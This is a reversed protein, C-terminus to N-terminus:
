DARRQAELDVSDPDFPEALAARAVQQLRQGYESDGFGPFLAPAVNAGIVANPAGIQDRRFARQTDAELNKRDSLTAQWEAEIADHDLIATADLRRVEDLRNPDIM